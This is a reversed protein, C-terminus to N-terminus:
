ALGLAHKLRVASRRDSVREILHPYQRKFTDESIGRLEAARRITVMRELELERPLRVENDTPTPMQDERCHAAPPTMLMRSFITSKPKFIYPAIPRL